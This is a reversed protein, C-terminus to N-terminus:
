VIHCILHFTIKSYNFYDSFSFVNIFLFFIIFILRRPHIFKSIIKSIHRKLCTWTWMFCTCSFLNHFLQVWKPKGVAQLHWRCEYLHRTRDEWQSTIFGRGWTITEMDSIYFYLILFYIKRGKFMKWKVSPSEGYMVVKTKWLVRSGMIGLQIQTETRMSQLLTSM